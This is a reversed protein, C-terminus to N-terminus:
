TADLREVSVGDSVFEVGAGDVAGPADAGMRALPPGDLFPIGPGFGPALRPEATPISPM